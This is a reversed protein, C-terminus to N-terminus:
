PADVVGNMHKSTPGGPGSTILFRGTADITQPHCTACSALTMTPNHPPSAPPVGHCTGCVVGGTQTWVPRAPGHCWANTCTATGRDWGLTVTVEAPPLSDIHGPDTVSVPVLHCTDCAVPGRLLSPVSLHARHAGVGIATTLLNGSLDTPPAPSTADGHCGACGATRGVQVIGDIHPANAPHCTACHDQAHSPPPAGHCRTCDGPTGAAAADDWRPRTATGGAAHLVDGHCYVNSCRGDAYAPPGSRDGAVLTVGARAGFAVQAPLLNAVGGRLIHGDADWTAPVVHCESCALKGVERHVVHANSTPGDGHCTVCATPGATHCTLCSVKAAGGSFDAGHCKACTQFSWDLRQLERVHFNDSAPDLIGAPHVSITSSGADDRPREESCAGAAALTALAGLTAVTALTRLAANAVGRLPARAPVAVFSCCM